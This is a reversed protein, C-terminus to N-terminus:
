TLLKAQTQVLLTKVRKLFINREVTRQAPTLSSMQVFEIQSTMQISKTRRLRPFIDKDEKLEIDTGPSWAQSSDDHIAIRSPSQSEDSDTYNVLSVMM